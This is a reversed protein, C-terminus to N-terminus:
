NLNQLIWNKYNSVRTYVGPLKPTACGIGFSTIGALVQKGNVISFLPGGSDGQCTDKKGEPFGACVHASPNITVSEAAYNSTCTNLDFVPLKVELLKKSVAGGASTTGWGIATLLTDTTGALTGDDLELNTRASTPANIKWIAVDNTTTNADYQPHATRKTVKYTAGQEAADTKSLDHRHVKVTWASDSGITCHAATIITNDNYLSGGCSHKGNYQLSVFAPYKFAPSVEYGGVIRPPPVSVGTTPNIFNLSM